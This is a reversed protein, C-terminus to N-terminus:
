APCVDPWYSYLSQVIEQADALRHVPVIVLDGGQAKVWRFVIEQEPFDSPAAPLKSGFFFTDIEQIL